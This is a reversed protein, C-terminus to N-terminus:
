KKPTRQKICFIVSVLSFLLTPTDGWRVWPTSGQYPTVKGILSGTKFLPLSAEIVGQPNIIASIGTNNIFTLYRGTVFAQAQAIQLHQAPAFSDGFWADNSLTLLIQAKPLAQRVLTPYAIEYCIFPAILSDAVTFDPPQHPGAQFTSLPIDFLGTLGRAWNLWSPMYEGFIVLKRKTYSAHDKGLAIINNYHYPLIAMPIGTIVTAGHARAVRDLQTLFDSVQEPVAPIASEPWIILRSSWHQQTLDYYRDLTEQLFHPEWKLQQPINGQILSVQIPKGSPHTWSIKAFCYAGLWLILLLISAAYRWVPSARQMSISGSAFGKKGLATLLLGSHLTVIFSLGYFGLLPGYGQLPSAVQSVGILLWPFGTCFQSRIWELLVWSAPFSLWRLPLPLTPHLLFRHLLYAHLSHFCAFLSIFLLTLVIALLWPTQSFEYISIYVWSVGVGFFGLGFLFGACMAQRPTHAVLCRWLLYTPCLIALPYYNIPSFSLALFGGIIFALGNNM